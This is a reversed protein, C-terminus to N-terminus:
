CTGHALLAVKKGERFLQNYIHCAEPTKKIVLTQIGHDKIMDQTKKLVKIAGNVGNGIVLIDINRDMVCAVMKPKLRHGKRAKWATVRGDIICIDKGVGEGSEAHIEGNILFRGWSFAEIPGKSDQFMDVEEVLM